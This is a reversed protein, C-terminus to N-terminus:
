QFLCFFSGHTSQNFVQEYESMVCTLILHFNGDAVECLMKSYHWQKKGSFSFILLHVFLQMGRLLANREM